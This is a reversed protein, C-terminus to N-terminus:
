KHAEAWTHGIGVEVDAPIGPHLEEAVGIMVERKIQAVEDALDIDCETLIEDHIQNVIYCYQTMLDFEERYRQILRYAAIKLADGASGQVPSNLSNRNSKDTYPNLWYKRGLITTVYDHGSQQEEAWEAFQEFVEFFRALLERGEDRPINYQVQMGYETLGYCAGLVTPKMRNARRPDKKNLEWGFMMRAAEIYIDKGQRFIEIMKEDQSLFAAIRPEQSSWDADVLVHNPAAIFCARYLTNKPINELNPKASSLRGTAAGNIKFDSYIRGNPEIDELFALGYTSAARAHERFKLVDAAFECEGAIKELTKADTGSLKKYKKDLSKLHPLVQYKPSNLNIDPYKDQMEQAAKAQEGALVTWAETDMMMGDMDLVTWLSGRDINKWIDLDSKSIDSKQDQYILWLSVVDFAAYELMKPTMDTETSFEAREEKELYIGLRRRALAKQSFDTFYGSFMEQEILMTDWIRDRDPYTCYKRLQTIDFKGNQWIHVGKEIREFFAPILSSDTILYVTKADMTCALSAFMGHPRHMKNRNMRFWETDLAIRAKDDTEPPLGIIIEIEKPDIQKM